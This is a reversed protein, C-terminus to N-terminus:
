ASKSESRCELAVRMSAFNPSVVNGDDAILSSYITLVVCCDGVTEGPNDSKWVVMM